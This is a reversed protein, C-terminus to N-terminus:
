RLTFKQVRDFVKEHVKNTRIEHVVCLVRALIGVRNVNTSMESLMSSVNLLYATVVIVM